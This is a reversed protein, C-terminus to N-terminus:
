EPPSLTTRYTIAPNEQKVVGTDTVTYTESELSLEIFPDERRSNLRKFLRRAASSDGRWMPVEYLGQLAFRSSGLFYPTVAVRHGKSTVGTIHKTVTRIPGPAHSRKYMAWELFPWAKKRLGASLLPVAHLAIVLVIFVSIWARSQRM